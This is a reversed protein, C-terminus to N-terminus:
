TRESKVLAAARGLRYLNTFCVPQATYFPLKGPLGAVMGLM